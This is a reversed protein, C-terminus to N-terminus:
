NDPLCCLSQQGSKAEQTIQRDQQLLKCKSCPQAQFKFRLDQFRSVYGFLAAAMFCVCSRFVAGSSPGSGGLSEPLEPLQEQPQEPAQELLKQCLPHQGAQKPTPQGRSATPEPLLLHCMCEVDAAPQLGSEVALVSDQLCIYCLSASVGVCARV